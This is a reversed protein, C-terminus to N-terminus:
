EAAQPQQITSKKQIMFRTGVFDSIVATTIFDGFAAKFIGSVIPIRTKESIEKMINNIEETALSLNTTQIVGAKYVLIQKGPGPCEITQVASDNLLSDIKVLSNIEIKQMNSPRSLSPKPIAPKSPKPISPPAVGTKKVIPPMRQNAIKPQEKILPKRQSIPSIFPYPLELLNIKEKEMITKHMVNDQKVVQGQNADQIVNEEILNMEM